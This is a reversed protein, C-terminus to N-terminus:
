AFEAVLQRVAGAIRAQEDSSGDLAAEVKRCAHLVTSHDLGGFAAGIQALSLPTLRRTLYIGVQRPLLTARSRKRSRVHSPGVRFYRGVGQVIREVTIQGAAADERFSEALEAPEPARGLTRVLGALRALAGELQRVSGPTHEALWDLAAEGQATALLGRARAALFARRSAQGLPLLGVVAGQALRSTLRHPLHTLQAPGANATLVVQQQRPLARDLLAALALGARSPLHQVDEVAILDAERLEPRGVEHEGDEGAHALDRAPLVVLASGPALSTLLRVLEAVLRTKGSGAPGHLFLPNVERRVGRVRGRAVCAAVREVACWAARSEALTVWPREM